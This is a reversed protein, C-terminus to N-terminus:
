RTVRGMQLTEGDVYQMAIFLRGGAEDVEYVACINSYDLAAAARAERVLRQRAHEDDATDPQLLLAVRRGLDTDEALYVEAM